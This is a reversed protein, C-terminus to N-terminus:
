FWKLTQNVSDFYEPGIPLKDPCNILKINYVSNQGVRAEKGGVYKINVMFGRHNRIIGDYHFIKEYYGLTKYIGDLVKCGTLHIQVTDSGHKKRIYLIDNSDVLTESPIKEKNYPSVVYHKVIISRNKLPKNSRLWELLTDIENNDLPKVLYGDAHIHNISEKWHKDYGTVFVMWPPYQLLKINIAFDLGARESQSQINIDIFAGDPNETKILNLGDITNEAEGVVDFDSHRDM